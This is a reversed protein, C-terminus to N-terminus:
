ARDGNTISLLGNFIATISSFHVLDASVATWIPRFKAFHGSTKEPLKVPKPDPDGSSSRSEM